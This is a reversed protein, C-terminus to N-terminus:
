FSQNQDLQQSSSQSMQHTETHPPRASAELLLCLFRRLPKNFVLQARCLSAPFFPERIFQIARSPPPQMVKRGEQGGGARIWQTPPHVAGILPTPHRQKDLACNIYM